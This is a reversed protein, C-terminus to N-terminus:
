RRILETCVNLVEGPEKNRSMDELQKHFYNECKEAYELCQTIGSKYCDENADTKCDKWKKKLDEQNKKCEETKKPKRKEKEQEIKEAKRKEKEKRTCDLKKYIAKNDASLKKYCHLRCCTDRVKLGFFQNKKERENCKELCRNEEEKIRCDLKKYIAKKDASLSKRDCHLRCCTDFVKLGDIQSHKEREKCRALCTTKDETVHQLLNKVLKQM